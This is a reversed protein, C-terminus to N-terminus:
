IWPPRCTVTLCKRGVMQVSPSRFGGVVDDTGDLVEYSLVGKDIAFLDSASTSAVASEHRLIQLRLGIEERRSHTM